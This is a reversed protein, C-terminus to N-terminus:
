LETVGRARRNFEDARAQWECSGPEFLHNECAGYGTIVGDTRVVVGGCPGIEERKHRRVATM